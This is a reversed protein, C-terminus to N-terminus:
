PWPLASGIAAPITAIPTMMAAIPSAFQTQFVVSECEM